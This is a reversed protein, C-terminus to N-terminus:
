GPLHRAIQKALTDALRFSIARFHDAPEGKVIERALNPGWLQEVPFRSKGKRRFVKRGYQGIIFVGQFMRRVNWPRASVGKQRQVAGFLNLNTEDGRQRMEYALRDRRARLTVFGRNLLGYKIGTVLVLARKIQTRGKDGERNLTDRMAITAKDGLALLQNHYRGLITDRAHVQLQM